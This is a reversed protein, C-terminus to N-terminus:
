GMQQQSPSRQRQSQRKAACGSKVVPVPDKKPLDPEVIFYEQALALDLNEPVLYKKQEPRLGKWM